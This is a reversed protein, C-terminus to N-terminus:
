ALEMKLSFIAAILEFQIGYGFLTVVGHRPRILSHHSQPLQPVTKSAAM